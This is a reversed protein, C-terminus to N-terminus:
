GDTNPPEGSVRNKGLGKAKYLRQDAREMWSRPGDTSRIEAIGISASVHIVGDEIALNRSWLEHLVREAVREAQEGQVDILIAAFEDGGIRALADTARCGTRLSDAVACLALDGVGHGHHDNVWKLDDLDILALSVHQGTSSHHVLARRMAGDFGARNLLRTLADTESAQQAQRLETTLDQIQLSLEAVRDALEQQRSDRQTALVVLEDAARRMEQRMHDLTGDDSAAQLRGIIDQVLQSDPLERALTGRVAEAISLLARRLDAFGVAVQEQERHRRETMYRALSGWGRQRTAMESGPPPSLTLIHRGVDGM